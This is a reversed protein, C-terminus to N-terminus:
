RWALTVSLVWRPDWQVPYGPGQAGFVVTDNSPLSGPAVMYESLGSSAYTGVANRKERDGKKEKLWKTDASGFV